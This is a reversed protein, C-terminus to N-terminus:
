SPCPELDSALYRPDTAYRDVTRDGDAISQSRCDSDYVSVAAVVTSLASSLHLGVEEVVLSGPWMVITWGDIPEFINIADGLPALDVATAVSCAVFHDSCWSEIPAILDAVAVDRM